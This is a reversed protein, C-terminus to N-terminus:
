CNFFYARSGNWVFFSSGLTIRFGLRRIDICHVPTLRAVTAGVPWLLNLSSVRKICIIRLLFLVVDHIKALNYLFNRM